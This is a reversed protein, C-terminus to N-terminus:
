ENQTSLKKNLIGILDSKITRASIYSELPVPM